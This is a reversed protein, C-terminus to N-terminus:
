VSTECFEFGCLLFQNMVKIAWYAIIIAIVDSFNHFGDTLLALSHLHLAIVIEIVSYVFTIVGIIFLSAFKSFNKGSAFNGKEILVNEEPPDQISLNM